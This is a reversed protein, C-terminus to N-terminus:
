PATRTKRQNALDREILAMASRVGHAHSVRGAQLHRSALGSLRKLLKAVDLLDVGGAAAVAHTQLELHEAALLRRLGAIGTNIGSRSWSAPTPASPTM